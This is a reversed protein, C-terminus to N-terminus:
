EPIIFASNLNIHFGVFDRVASGLLMKKLQIFYGGSATPTKICWGANLNQTSRQDKSYWNYILICAYINNYYFNILIIIIIIFVFM